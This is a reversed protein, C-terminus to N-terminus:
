GAAVVPKTKKLIFVAAACGLSMVAMPRFDDAYAMTQAQNAVTTALKAYARQM